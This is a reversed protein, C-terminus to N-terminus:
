LREWKTKEKMDKHLFQLYKNLQSNLKPLDVQALFKDSGYDAHCISRFLNRFDALCKETNFDKTKSKYYDYLDRAADQNKKANAKNIVYEIGFTKKYEEAFITVLIDSEPNPIISLKDNYILEHEWGKQNLFTEPNKRYKKDPQSEKYKPIYIKILERIGQSLKNFKKEIRIKDGVKKDYDNWFNEFGYGNKNEIEYVNKNDDEDENENEMHKVYSKTLRNNKRSESYNKRKLSEIDLRSNFYLGESDKVFKSYIRKDYTKCINRMDEETLRGQQHQLCLLRVYKGVQEDTFTFTGTLFDSSYFLFAPDKAM